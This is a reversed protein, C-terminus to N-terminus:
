FFWAIQPVNTLPLHTHHTFHKDEWKWENVNKGLTISLDNLATTLAEASQDLCTEIYTATGVDDCWKEATGHIVKHMFRPRFDWYDDFVDDLEDAAVQRIFERYWASFVLPQPLSGLMEGDWTGLLAIAEEAQANSPSTKLLFPLFEAVWESKIDNQIRRFSAFSHNPREKLQNELREVRYSEKWQSSLYYPYNDPTVRHNANFLMKSKPNVSRPLENTPIYGEWDYRPDWGPAPVLGKIDNEEKRIPIYGTVHWAINNKTDASIVSLAPGLQNEVAREIDFVTKANPFALFASISLDRYFLVSWSFSIAHNLKTVKNIDASTNSIIPGHRTERVIFVVDEEGKVKIIEERTVFEKWGDPTLYQNPNDPNIKEIYLDQTDISANTISWAVKNNHGLVIGPVGPLTAGSMNVSPAILHAAYWTSPIKISLHVDNGLLPMGTASLEGSVVWANSGNDRTKESIKLESVEKMPSDRYLDVLESSLPIMTDLHHQPMLDEVAYDEPLQVMLKARLIEEEWNSGLDYAMMTVWSITDAPTWADPKVGLILFEPPLSGEWNTIATNIGATYVNLIEKIEDSLYEYSDQAKRYVGIARLFKDKELAASGLIESLSGRGIRKQM